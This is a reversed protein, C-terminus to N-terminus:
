RIEEEGEERSAPGQPATILPRLVRLLKNPMPVHMCPVAICAHIPVHVSIGAFKLHHEPNYHAHVSTRCRVPM